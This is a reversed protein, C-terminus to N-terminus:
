IKDAEYDWLKNRRDKKQAVTLGRCCNFIMTRGQVKATETTGHSSQNQATYTM